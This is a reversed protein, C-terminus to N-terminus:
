ARLPLYPHGSSDCLVWCPVLLYQDGNSAEEQTLQPKSGKGGRKPCGGEVEAKRKQARAREQSLQM